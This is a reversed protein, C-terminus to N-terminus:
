PNSIPVLAISSPTTHLPRGRWKGSEAVAPRSKAPTQATRRSRPDSSLRDRGTTPRRATWRSLQDSAPQWRTVTATQGRYNRMLNEIANTFMLSGHLTCALDLRHLAILQEGAEDLRILAAAKRAAVFRRLDALAERGAVEGQAVRLRKWLRSSEAHDSRRLSRAACIASACNKSRPRTATIWHRSAASKSARAAPPM